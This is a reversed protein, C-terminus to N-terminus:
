DVAPFHASLGPVGSQVPFRPNEESEAPINGATDIIIVKLSSTGLDIGMM